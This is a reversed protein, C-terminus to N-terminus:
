QNLFESVAKLNVLMGTLIAAEDPNFKDSHLPYDCQCGVHYFSGPARDLYFGFDESTMLPADAVSVNEEGLIDEACNKVFDTMENDNIIGSFSERIRVECEAGMG